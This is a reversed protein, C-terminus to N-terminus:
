FEFELSVQMQVHTTVRRISSDIIKIMRLKAFEISFRLCTSIPASESIAQAAPFLDDAIQDVLSTADFTSLINRECRKLAVTSKMDTESKSQLAHIRHSPIIIKRADERLTNINGIRLGSRANSLIDEIKIEMPSTKKSTWDEANADPIIGWADSLEMEPCYWVTGPRMAYEEWMKVVKNLVDQEKQDGVLYTCDSPSLDIDRCIDPPITCQTRQNVNRKTWGCYCDDTEGGISFSEYGYMRFEPLPPTENEIIPPVKFSINPLPTPFQNQQFGTCMLSDSPVHRMAYHWFLSSDKFSNTLLKSVYKELMSLGDDITNAQGDSAYAETDFNANAVPNYRLNDTRLPLVSAATVMSEDKNLQLTTMPMTFMVQSVLGTCMRWISKYNKFPYGVEDVSYKMTPEYSTFIGDSRASEALETNTWNWSKMETLTNAYKFANNLDDTFVENLYGPIKDIVSALVDESQKPQM